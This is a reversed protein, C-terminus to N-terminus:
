AGVAVSQPSPGAPYHPATIFSLLTRDELGEVRPRFFSFNVRRVNRRSTNWLPM